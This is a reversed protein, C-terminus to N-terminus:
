VKTMGKETNVLLMAAGGALMVQEAKKARGNTGFCLSETYPFQSKYSIRQTNQSRSFNRRSEEEDSSRTVSITIFSNPEVQSNSQTSDQRLPTSGQEPARNRHLYRWYLLPLCAICGVTYGVIWAFLPTQPNEHTSLTLVVIAAIIQGRRTSSPSSPITSNITSLPPQTITARPSSSTREENQNFGSSHSYSPVSSSSSANGHREIDIVHDNSEHYEPSSLLNKSRNLRKKKCSWALKLRTAPFGQWCRSEKKIAGQVYPNRILLGSYLSIIDEVDTAQLTFAEVNTLCRVTRNSLLKHVPIGVRKEYRNLAFNELWLTILEEGCVDGTSLLVVDTDEGISELKGQVIFVIKNILSGPVLIRSGTIYTKQKLRERIADLISENMWDVIPFREVMTFLHRHIDRQLDEPLNELLKLEDLGKNVAWNYRESERIQRRLNKPFQHHSMWQEVDLHRVSMELSRRGLAQLFNTLSSEKLISTAQTYIGSDFLKSDTCASASMNSWKEWSQYDKFGENKIGQWSYIHSLPCSPDEHCVSRLCLKVWQLAFLYWCSGVVHSFLVFAVLNIVFKALWSDFNLGSTSQNALLPLVRCFM